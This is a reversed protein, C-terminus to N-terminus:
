ATNSYNGMRILTAEMLAVEYIDHTVIITTVGESHRKIYAATSDRNRDDLGKFPEDLLLLEKKALMARAIVVRRKMGGSLEGASQRANERLGLEDLHRLILEKTVGKDAAFAINSVASFEELLRDEQFVASIYEPTGKIEGSSQPELGMLIRLLTTKGCGSEGMIVTRKGGAFLLNMNELVIHSGFAKNLNVVRIDMMIEM